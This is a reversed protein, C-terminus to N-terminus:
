IYILPQKPINRAVFGDVDLDDKLADNSSLSMQPILILLVLIFIRSKMLQASQM